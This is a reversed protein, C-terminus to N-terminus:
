SLWRFGQKTVRAGTLKQYIPFRGMMKEVNKQPFIYNILSFPTANAFSELHAHSVEQVGLNWKSPIKFCSLEIM